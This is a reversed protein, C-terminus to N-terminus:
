APMRHWTRGNLRDWGLHAVTRPTTGHAACAAVSKGGHTIVTRSAEWQLHVPGRPAAYRCEIDARVHVSSPNSLVTLTESLSHGPHVIRVHVPALAPAALAAAPVAAVALVALPALVAATVTRPHKIM